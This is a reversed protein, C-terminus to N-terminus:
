RQESAGDSDAAPPVAVLEEIAKIEEPSLPPLEAVCDAFSTTDLESSSVRTLVPTEFTGAITYYNEGVNSLPKRFIQTILLTTIGVAPGALFAGAM